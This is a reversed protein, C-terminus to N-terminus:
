SDRASHFFEIVVGTPRFPSTNILLPLVDFKSLSKCLLFIMIVQIVTATKSNRRHIFKERALIARIGSQLVITSHRLLNYNKRFVHWRWNTQIKLSAADKRMITFFNSALMGSVMSISLHVQTFILFSFLM